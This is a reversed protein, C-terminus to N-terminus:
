SSPTRLKLQEDFYLTPLDALTLNVSTKRSCSKVGVTEIVTWDKSGAASPVNTQEPATSMDLDLCASSSFRIICAPTFPASRRAERRMGYVIRIRELSSELKRATVVLM